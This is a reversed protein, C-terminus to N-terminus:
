VGQPPAARPWDISAVGERQSDSSRHAITFVNVAFRALTQLYNVFFLFNCTRRKAPASDHRMALALREGYLMPAVPHSQKYIHNGMM